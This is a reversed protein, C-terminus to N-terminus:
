KDIHNNTVILTKNERTKFFTYVGGNGVLGTVLAIALVESIPEQGLFPMVFVGFIFCVALFVGACIAYRFRTSQWPKSQAPM